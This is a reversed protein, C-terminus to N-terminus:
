FLTKESITEDYYLKMKERDWYFKENVSRFEHRIASRLTILYKGKISKSPEINFDYDTIQVLIDELLHENNKLLIENNIKFNTFTNVITLRYKALLSYLTSWIMDSKKLKPFQLIANHLGDLLIGTFPEGELIATDLKMLIKNIFDEPSLYGTYFCLSDIKVNEEKIKENVKIINNRLKLYYQESYLLSIILVKRKSIANKESTIDEEKTLPYLLLTLALGAKGSSEYGHLLIQSKDWIQLKHPKVNAPDNFFDIYYTESPEPKSIIEKKDTQSPLQSSIHIGNKSSLHFIHAGQRSMQYRTKLLRLIRTPKEDLTTTGTHRLDIVTDVMYDISNHFQEDNPSVLIILAQLQKCKNIFNNIDLKQADLIPRISDIVIILPCVSPLLTNDRQEQKSKLIKFIKDLYDDTFHMIDENYSVLHACFWSDIDKNYISLKKLYAPILSRLRYILDHPKEEDLSIYYTFTGFPSMTASLGLAFSTKGTGPAGSIRTVLNNSKSGSFGGQFIIDAGKIPIPIGRLENMLSSADPLESYRSFKRFDVYKTASINNIFIENNNLYSIADERNPFQLYFVGKAALYHALMYQVPNEKVVHMDLSYKKNGTFLDLISSVDSIDFSTFGSPILSHVPFVKFIEYLLSRCLLVVYAVSQPESPVTLMQYLLSLPSPIYIREKEKSTPQLNEERVNRYAELLIKPLRRDNKSLHFDTVTSYFSSFHEELSEELKEEPLDSEIVYKLAEFICNLLKIGSKSYPINNNDLLNHM